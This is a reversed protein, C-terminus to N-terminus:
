SIHFKTEIVLQALWFIGFAVLVWSLRIRKEFRELLESGTSGKQWDGLGRSIQFAAFKRLLAGLGLVFLGGMVMALPSYFEDKNLFEVSQSAISRVNELNVYSKDANSFFLFFLADM